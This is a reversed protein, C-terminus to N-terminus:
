FKGTKSRIRYHLRKYEGKKVGAKKAKQWLYDPYPFIDYKQELTKPMMQYQWFRRFGEKTNLYTELKSLDGVSALYIAEVLIEDKITKARITTAFETLLPLADPGKQGLLVILGRLFISDESSLYCKLDLLRDSVPLGALVELACLRWHTAREKDIYKILPQWMSPDNIRSLMIFARARVLFDDHCLLVSLVDQYEALDKVCAEIVPLLILIEDKGNETLVRPWDSPLLVSFDKM